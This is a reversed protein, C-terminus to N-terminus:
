EHSGEALFSELLVTAAVEDVRGQQGTRGAFSGEGRLREKAEWSTLREDWYVVPLGTVKGALEGFERNARTQKSEEGSLRVPEGVLLLTVQHKMAVAALAELDERTKTRHLTPLGRATMRLEDSVALGIRKRGVDLALVRGAEAMAETM